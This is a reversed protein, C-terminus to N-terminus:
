GLGDEFATLTSGGGGGAFAVFAEHQATSGVLFFGRHRRRAVLDVRGVQGRIFEPQELEPNILPELATRDCVLDGGPAPVGCLVSRHGRRGERGGAADRRRRPAILHVQRFDGGAQGQSLEGIRIQLFQIEILAASHSVTVGHHRHGEAAIVQQRGTSVAGHAQPPPSGQRFLAGGQGQRGCDGTEGGGCCLRRRPGRISRDPDPVRRRLM